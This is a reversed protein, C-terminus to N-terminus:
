HEFIISERAHQSGYILGVCMPWAALTRSLKLTLTDLCNTILVLYTKTGELSYGQFSLDIITPTIMKSMSIKSKQDM